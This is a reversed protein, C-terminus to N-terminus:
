FKYGHNLKWTALALCWEWVNKDTRDDFIHLKYTGDPKLQVALRKFAPTGEPKFGIAKLCAEYGSTQIAWSKEPQATCKWEMVASMGGILGIQDIKFGVDGQLLRVCNQYEAQQCIWGTDNVFKEFGLIYPTCRTDVTDWDLEGESPTSLVHVASHVASGVESKADLAEQPAGSYDILGASELVQTVSLVQRGGKDVYRHGEEHFTFEIPVPQTVTAM